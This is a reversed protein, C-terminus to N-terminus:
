TLNGEFQTAPPRASEKQELDPDPEDANARVKRIKEYAVQLPDAEPEDKEDSSTIRLEGAVLHELLGNLKELEEAIARLAEANAIEREGTTARSGTLFGIPKRWNM